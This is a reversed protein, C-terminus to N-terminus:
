LGAAARAGGAGSGDPRAPAGALAARRRRHRSSEDSFVYSVAGAECVRVCEPEGGCYDCKVSIRAVPDYHAHGFPCAVNCARCGICQEEDIIM